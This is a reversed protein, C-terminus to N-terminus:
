IRCLLSLIWYKQRSKKWKAYKEMWTTAFPLMERKRMAPYYGSYTHVVSKLGDMQWHVNLNNGQRAIQIISCYVHSHVYRKSIWIENGKTIYWFILKSSWATTRNKIQSTELSKMTIKILKCGRSCPVLICKEGCQRWCKNYKRKSLLCGLLHTSIETTKIWM